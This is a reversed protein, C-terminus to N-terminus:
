ADDRGFMRQVASEEQVAAEFRELGFLNLVRKFQSAVEPRLAALRRCAALSVAELTALTPAEHAIGWDVAEQSGFEEGLLMLAKARHLGVSAPLTAVLGGTVFVGMEAEPTHRTCMGAALLAKPVAGTALLVSDAHVELVADGQKIVAGIVRGTDDQLPVDFRAPALWRAGADIAGQALLRDLERRPLVALRGPVDVRGGRPGICAM